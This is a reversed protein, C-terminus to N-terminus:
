GSRCALTEGSDPFASKRCVTLYWEEDDRILRCDYEDLNQEALLAAWLRQLSRAVYECQSDSLPPDFTASIGFLNMWYDIEGPSKGNAEMDRVKVPSFLEEVLVYEGHRVINPAALSLLAVVLHELPGHTDLLWGIYQNLTLPEGTPEHKWGAYDPLLNRPIMNQDHLIPDYRFM